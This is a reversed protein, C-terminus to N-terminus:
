SWRSYGMLAPWWLPSPPSTNHKGDHVVCLSRIDASGLARKISTGCVNMPSNSLCLHVIAPATGGDDHEMRSVVEDDSRHKCSKTATTVTSAARKPLAPTGSMDTLRQLLDPLAMTAILCSRHSSWQVCGLTVRQLFAEGVNHRTGEFGANRLGVIQLVIPFRLLSPAYLM